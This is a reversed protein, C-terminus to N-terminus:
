KMLINLHLNGDGVHGFGCLEFAIGRDNRKAFGERTLQAEVRRILELMKLVKDVGIDYKYLKSTTIGEHTRDKRSAAMLALPVNERVAWM